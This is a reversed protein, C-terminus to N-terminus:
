WLTKNLFECRFERQLDLNGSQTNKGQLADWYGGLIRAALMPPFERDFAKRDQRSRHHSLFQQLVNKATEKHGTCTYLRHFFYCFDYYRPRHQAAWEGDILNIKGRGKENSLMHWPTCDGHSMNPKYVEKLKELESVIPLLEELEGVSKFFNMTQRIFKREPFRVRDYPGDWVFKRSPIKLMDFMGLALKEVSEELLASRAGRKNECIQSGVVYPAVFFFLEGVRGTDVVEPVGFPSANGLMSSIHRNWRVENRTARCIGKTTGLKFFYREGDRLIIASLHRWQQSVEVIEYGKNNLVEFVKKQFYKPVKWAAVPDSIQSKSPTTWLLTM